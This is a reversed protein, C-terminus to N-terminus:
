FQDIWLYNMFLFFVVDTILTILLLDNSWSWLLYKSTPKLIGTTYGHLVVCFSIDPVSFLASIYFHIFMNIRLDLDTGYLYFVSFPVYMALYSFFWFIHVFYLRWIYTHPPAPTIAVSLKNTELPCKILM